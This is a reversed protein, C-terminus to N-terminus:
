RAEDDSPWGGVYEISGDARVLRASWGAQALHYDADEWLLAATAFANATVCDSATVSATTYVGKAYSGTRPDIVHNVVHGDVHWTRTTSSSTAVGGHRLSIRPENGFISLSDSVAIAWPGEPGNGRVAVDGGLEVVVGGTPAVDNAVVDAVLAKASAGLDIQCAADLTLTHRERDLHIASPGPPLLPAREEIDVRLAVDGYDRDYGLALLAPLVTPDCLGDTIQAAHLASELAREFTPSVTVSEGGLANVRSIESDPRFRNCAADFEDIWHWLREEAYPMQDDRETTLSGSLGWIAFKM